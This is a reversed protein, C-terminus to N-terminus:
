GSFPQMSVKIKDGNQLLGFTPYFGGKPIKTSIQKYKHGNKSFFIEVSSGGGWIDEDGSEEGSDSDESASKDEATIKSLGGDFTHQADSEDTKFCAWISMVDGPKCCEGYAAGYGSEHFMKGDDAHYAISSSVWGPFSLFDYKGIALGIAVSGNMQLIEIQFCNFVRSIPIHWQALSIDEQDSNGGMHTLVTGNEEIFVNTNVKRWCYYLSPVLVLEGMDVDGETENTLGRDNPLLNLRAKEGQSHMGIMPYLGGNPIRIDSITDILEGNKTFYVSCCSSIGADFDIGCGIIDGEQFPTGKWAKGFGQECFLKGDDGHYGISKGDWGPQRTLNYNLDCLGITITGARGTNLVEIEFYSWKHFLPYSWMFGAVSGGAGIKYSLIMKKNDFKMHADKYKPQLNHSQKTAM